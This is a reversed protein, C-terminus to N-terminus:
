LGNKVDIDHIVGSNVLLLTGTPAIVRKDEM